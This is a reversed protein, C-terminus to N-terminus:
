VPVEMEPTPEGNRINELVQQETLEGREILVRDTRLREIMRARLFHNSGAKANIAEILPDRERKPLTPQPEPIAAGQLKLAHYKELLMDYRTRQDHAAAVLQGVQDVARVLSAAREDYAERSVWPWKM